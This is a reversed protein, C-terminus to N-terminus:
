RTEGINSNDSKIQIRRTIILGHGAHQLWANPASPDPRTADHVYLLTNDDVAIMSNNQHSGSYVGDWRISPTAFLTESLFWTRGRDKSFHVTCDPRGTSLALIGNKLLVLNPKIGCIPCIYRPSLLEARTWTRGRDYSRVCYLPKNSGARLACLMEGDPFIVLSPESFGDNPACDMRGKYGAGIKNDPNVVFSDEDYQSGGPKISLRPEYDSGDVPVGGFTWTRGNDHSVQMLVATRYWNLRQWYERDWDRIGATDKLYLVYVMSYLTGDQDRVQPFLSGWMLRLRSVERIYPELYAPPTTLMAGRLYNGDKKRYEEPPDFTDLGKTGPYEVTTWTHGTWTRGLDSSRWTPIKYVGPQGPVEFANYFWATLEREGTQYKTGSQMLVTQKEWTLGADHSVRGNPKDPLFPSEADWGFSWNLYVSQGFRQLYPGVFTGEDPSDDRAAVIQPPGIEVTVGAVKRVVAESALVPIGNYNLM